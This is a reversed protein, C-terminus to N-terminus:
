DERGHRGGGRGLDPDPARGGPQWHPPITYGAPMKARLTFPGPKSPDGSLVAMLSGKPLAPPAEGWKLTAPTMLPHADGTAPTTQAVASFAMAFSGLFALAISKHM